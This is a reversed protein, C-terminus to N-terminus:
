GTEDSRLMGKKLAMAVAETRRRVGLKGFISTIHIRITGESVGLGAAIEENKQGRFIHQLIELERRTLRAKAEGSGLWDAVSPPIHKHGQAVSRIAELLTAADADKKVYGRAGAELASTVDEQNEYHSLVLIRAGPHERVIRATAQAGDLEPLRLDMVVLDPRETRFAEVAQRGTEVCGVVQLDPQRELLTTIALQSLYHDEVVLVRLKNPKM